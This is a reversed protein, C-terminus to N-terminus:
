DRRFEIPVTITGAVPQGDLQAPRFRWRRVTDMAARDLLRSGSSDALSVSRPVGNPGVEVRVLVTGTEGRRYARFPYRPAPSRGAIPEPISASATAAPVPEAEAAAPVPSPPPPPPATEVLQARGKAAPKRDADDPSALPGLRGAEDSAPLPTPLPAYERGAATPATAGALDFDQKDRGGSWVLLFLGVGLAIALVIWWLSRLPPLWAALDFRPRHPAPSPSSM